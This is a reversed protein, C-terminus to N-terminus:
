TAPTRTAIGTAARERQKFIESFFPSTKLMRQTSSEAERGQVNEPQDRPTKLRGTVPRIEAFSDGHQHDDNGNHKQSPLHEIQELDEGDLQM